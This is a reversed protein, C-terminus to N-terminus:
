CILPRHASRRRRRDGERLLEVGADDLYTKQFIEWIYEVGSESPHLLDSAYFRYDRLDDMIIEYAPFYSCGNGNERRCIEDVALLLTAKSRANDVFGDRLHRVPSVTFIVRVAPCLDRLSGVARALADTCDEVSLRSRRFLAPPMKHCNAVLMEPQQLFYCHATGLTIFLASARKMAELTKARAAAFKEKAAQPTPASFSSDFLWSHTNGDTGEFLSAGFAAEAEEEPLFILLRIAEAISIPNYLTGAPTLAEWLSLRMRAAMNESFCSGLLVVPQEPTLTFLAKEPEFITRFKM